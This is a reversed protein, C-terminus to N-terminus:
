HDSFQSITDLCSSAGVPFYSTPSTPPLGCFLCRSIRLRLDSQRMCGICGYAGRFDMRTLDCEQRRRGHAPLAGTPWVHCRVVASHARPSRRPHTYLMKGQADGGLGLLGHRKTRRGEVSTRRGDGPLRLHPERDRLLLRRGHFTLHFSGDTTSHSVTLM